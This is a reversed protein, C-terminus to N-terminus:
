ANSRDGQFDMNAPIAWHDPNGTGLDEMDRIEASEMWAPSNRGLAISYAEYRSKLDGRMQGDLNIKYYMQDQESEKLIKANYEAEINTAIPLLGDKVFEIGMHEINNHTARDMEMIKHLPVGFIRAVDAMSFRKSSVLQDIAFHLKYQEFKWGPELILMNHWSTPGSQYQKAISERIAKFEEEAEEDTSSTLGADEAPLQIIGGAHMGKGFSSAEMKQAALGTGITESIYDLPAIGKIGDFSLDFVHAVDNNDYLKGDVNFVKTGAKTEPKCAWPMIPVMSTVDYFRNRNLGAYHNGWLKLHLVLQFFYQYQNQFRNPRTHFLKNAIKDSAVERSKRDDSRRFLHKPSSAIAGGLVTLARFVGTHALSRKENVQIGSDNSGYGFNWGDISKLTLKQTTESYKPIIQALRAM